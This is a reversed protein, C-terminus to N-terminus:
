SPEVTVEIPPPVPVSSGLEYTTAQYSGPPLAPMGGSAPCAPLARSWPGSPSCQNYTAAVTVPYSSTGPPFTGSGSCLLWGPALPSDRNRLLIQFLQGCTVYTIPRGTNNTITVRGTITSGARVSTADLQLTVRVGAASTAVSAATGLAGDAAFVALALVLLVATVIVRKM